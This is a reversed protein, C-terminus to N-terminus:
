SSQSLPMDPILYHMPKGEIGGPGFSDKHSLEPFSIETNTSHQVAPTSSSILEGNESPNYVPAPKRKKGLSLRHIQKNTM